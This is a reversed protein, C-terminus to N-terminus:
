RGPREDEGLTPDSAESVDELRAGQSPSRLHEPDVGRDLGEPGRADPDAGGQGM